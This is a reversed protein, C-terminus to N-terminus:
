DKLNDERWKKIKAHDGSILVDPVKQGKFDSPKTFHPHEKKGQFHSSFSDQHPSAENGLSGPILRIISDMLVMAPLEGGSLVFKGISIEEDVLTDRIRQDIGEYHGCLLILESEQSLSEVKQQTLESGQPTFFIVKTKPKATKKAASIADHLPQPTLLMGPGGGFPTDDVRKHKDTSFDRLQLFNTTFLNKTSARSIISHQLWSDFAEPFLTIVTFNM